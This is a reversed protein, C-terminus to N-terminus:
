ILNKWNEILYEAAHVNKKIKRFSEAYREWLAKLFSFLANIVVFYANEM